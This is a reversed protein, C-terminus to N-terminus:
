FGFHHPFSIPPTPINPIPIPLGPVPVPIPPLEPVPIGGCTGGVGPVPVTTHHGFPLPVTTTCRCPLLEFVNIAALGYARGQNSVGAETIAQPMEHLFNADCSCENMGRSIYCLDHRMCVADVADWPMPNNFSSGGHNPGCWRGYNIPNNHVDPQFRQPTVGAVIEPPPSTFAKRCVSPSIKPLSM